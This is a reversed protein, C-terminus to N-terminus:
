HTTAPHPCRLKVLETSYSMHAYEYQLDTGNKAHTRMQMVGGGRDCATVSSVSGGEGTLRSM